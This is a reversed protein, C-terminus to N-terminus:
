ESKMIIISKEAPRREELNLNLLNYALYVSAITSSNGIQEDTPWTCYNYRLKMQEM